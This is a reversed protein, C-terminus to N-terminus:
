RFILWRGDLKGIMAQLAVPRGDADRKSALPTGGPGKLELMRGDGCLVSHPAPRPGNVSPTSGIQDGTAQRIEAESLYPFAVAMDAYEPGSVQDFWDVDSAYFAQVLREIFSEAEAQTQDASSWRAAKM